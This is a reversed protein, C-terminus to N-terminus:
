EAEAHDPLEELAEKSEDSTAGIKPIIGLVMKLVSGVRRLVYGVVAM